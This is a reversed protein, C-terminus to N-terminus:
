AACGGAMARGSFRAARRKPSGESPQMLGIENGDPDGARAQLNGDPGVTTEQDIPAGNGRPYGVAADIDEPLLCLHMFGRTRAPASPPGGPFVEIFRDGPVHRYVPM